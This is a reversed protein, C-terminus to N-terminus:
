QWVRWLRWLGYVLVSGPVCGLVVWAAVRAPWASDALEDLFKAAMVGEESFSQSLSECSAARERVPRAREDDSM